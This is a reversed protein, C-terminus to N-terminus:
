FGMGSFQQDIREERRMEKRREDIVKMRSYQGEVKTHLNDLSDTTVPAFGKAKPQYSELPFNGTMNGVKGLTLLGCKRWLREAVYTEYAPVRHCACLDYVDKPDDRDNLTAAKIDIYSPLSISPISGLLPHTETSKPSISELASFLDVNIPPLDGVRLSGQYMGCSEDGDMALRNGYAKKLKRFIPEPSDFAGRTTLDVDWSVRHKLHHTAIPGTGKIFCKKRLDPVKAAMDSCIAGYAERYQAFSSFLGEGPLATVSSPQM